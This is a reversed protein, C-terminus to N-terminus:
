DWRITYITKSVPTNPASRMQHFDVNFGHMTTLFNVLDDHWYDKPFSESNVEVSFKGEEAAKELLPKVKERYLTTVANVRFAIMMRAANMATENLVDRHRKETEM